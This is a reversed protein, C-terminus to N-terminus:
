DLARSRREESGFAVAFTIRIERPDGYVSRLPDRLTIYTEDTLNRAELTLRYQGNELGVSGNWLDIDSMEVLNNIKTTNTYGGRQGRYSASGVFRWDDFLRKRYTLTGTYTWEPSGEVTQGAYPGSNIEGTLYNVAGNYDFRGWGELLRASGFFEFDVGQTKASGANFRYNRSTPNPPTDVTVLLDDFQNEFATLTFFADLLEFKAGVEYASNKEPSYSPPIIPDLISNANFGGARYGIGASAFVRLNDLIEYKISASPATTDFTEELVNENRLCDPRVVQANFPDNYVLVCSTPGTAPGRLVTYADTKKESHNYRVAADLSLPDTIQWNVSAFAGTQLEEEKVGQSLNGTPSPALNVASTTRGDLVTGFETQRGQINAGVIYSISDTLESAFRVEESTLETHDTFLTTCARTACTAAINAQPATAYGPATRDADSTFDTTRERYLTTSTLTGFGTDWEIQGNYNSTERNSENSANMSYTFPGDIDPPPTDTPPASSDNKEGVERIVNSPSLENSGDAVLLFSLNAAPAWELVGKYGFYEEVDGAKGTFQNYFFGDGKDAMQVGIRVGLTDSFPMNGIADIGFRQIDPSWTTRVSAGPTAKPRQSIAQMVGGVANVGYLAGQPGRTVEVRALDFLDQRTFTRGGINGGTISAGDRLVAIPSDVGATRATGAGAGRINNEANINGTDVFSLGPLLYSLDKIDKIGGADELQEASLGTVAAPVDQVLEERRRATVIVKESSSPENAPTTTQVTQPTQATASGSVLAVLAVRRMLKKM